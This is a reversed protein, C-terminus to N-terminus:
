DADAGPGAFRRQGGAETLVYDRPIGKTSRGWPSGQARARHADFDARAAFVERVAFRCPDAMSRIVEFVLCGPEARTLRIHEPLLAAVRDAEDLSRCILFGTLIVRPM